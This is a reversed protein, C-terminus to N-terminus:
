SRVQGSIGTLEALQTQEDNYLPSYVTRARSQTGDTNKGNLDYEYICPRKLGFSKRKTNGM